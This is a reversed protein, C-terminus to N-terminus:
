LVWVFCAGFVLRFGFAPLYAGYGNLDSYEGAFGSQFRLLPFSVLWGAFPGATFWAFVFSLCLALYKNKSWHNILILLGASIMLPGTNFVWVGIYALVDLRPYNYGWQFLLGEATLLGTLAILMVNASLWHAIRKGGAFTTTNELPLFRVSASKWYSDNIFYVLLVLMLTHFNSSITTAVLGSTAYLQPLRIGKEIEGYLEMGIYFLLGAVAVLLPVSGF